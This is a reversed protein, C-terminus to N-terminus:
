YNHVIKLVWLYFARVASEEDFDLWKTFLHGDIAEGPGQFAPSNGGPSSASALPVVGSSDLLAFESLQVSNAGGSDRVKM